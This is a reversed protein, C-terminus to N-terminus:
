WDKGTTETAPPVVRALARRLQADEYAAQRLLARAEEATM